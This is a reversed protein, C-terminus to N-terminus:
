FIPKSLNVSHGRNSQLRTPKQRGLAALIDFLEEAERVIRESSAEKLRWKLRHMSHDQTLFCYGALLLPNTQYLYSNAPYHVWAEESRKMRNRLSQIRRDVVDRIRPLNEPDLYPEFLGAYMWELARKSEELNNGEGSIVLEVRETHPNSSIYSALGLIENKIRENMTAYDVVEGDKIVGIESILEPLFPLYLLRDEPIVNLNLAIGITASTMSKFTSAVLPVNGGLTDITYDLQPDYSMPPNEIFKPMPVKAAEEDIIATNRDYEEKYLAIAKEDESVGYKEKLEATFKALRADKEELAKQMMEPDAVCGVGYPETKLLNWNDILTTWINEDKELQAIAYDVCEKMILSKKFEPNKELVKMLSYWRGGGGGRLGFGPPSNLYSESDKRVENLRGMARKNFDELEPSGPQYAAIATIEDRILKSYSAIKAESIQDRDVNSIGMWIAHGENDEVSAWVGSAGIDMVRTDSKILLNYLNSTQSGGLCNLFLKLLMRENLDFKLSAPWAFAINGPEQDNSGPYTVIRIEGAPTISQPKDVRLRQPQRDPHEENGDIERLIVDTKELFENPSVEDPIATIMGMNDLRYRKKHFEWLDTPAMKRIASPEGGSSNALVHDAGYLMEDLTSYLYYWFKEYSSVMETYITGKEELGLTGDNPDVTVGINCVERRIEEDSFNPHVM